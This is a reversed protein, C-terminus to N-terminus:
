GPGVPVADLVADVGQPHRERVAGSLDDTRSLVETAGLGRVREDDGRSAVAVAQVGRAAALQVAFGGVGGSAGPVLLTDGARPALLDLAQRATLGNLPLTAAAVPDVGAPLPALWGADLVVEEAWTGVGGDFWPSVGAVRQGVTFPTGAGVADVEGAVDWGLVLPLALHATMAALVGDAVLRDVPNVTAARVRVRVQGPGPQPQPREVARVEAGYQELEVVRM